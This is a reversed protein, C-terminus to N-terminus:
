FINSQRDEFLNNYKTVNKDLALAPDIDVVQICNDAVPANALINGDPDIIQSEGTYTLSKEGRDETGFRNCLIWFMKNEMARVQTSRQAKTPMVLNSPHCVIQAGALGVARAAEPFYHDFCVLLSVKVGNIDFVPFGLNGAKFYLKEEYFLHVKRYVGAVGNPGVIASSNYVADGDREPLGMAIYLNHRKALRQLFETSPGPITEALEDVEDQSTCLYGSNALEPLVILDADVGELASEIHNLNKEVNGFEPAFQYFGVRMTLDERKNLRKL